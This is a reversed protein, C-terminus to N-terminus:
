NKQLLLMLLAIGSSVSVGALGALAGYFKYRASRMFEHSVMLEHALEAREEDKKEMIEKISQAIIRRLEKMKIDIDQSDSLKKQSDLGEMLQYFEENAISNKEIHERM